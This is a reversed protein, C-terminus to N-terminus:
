SFYKERAHQFFDLMFTSKSLAELDKPDVGEDTEESAKIKQEIKVPKAYVSRMLSEKFSNSEGLMELATAIEKENFVFLIGWNLYMQYDSTMPIKKELVAYALHYKISYETDLSMNEMNTAAWHLYDYGKKTKNYQMYESEIITSYLTEKKKFINGFTIKKELVPKKSLEIMDDLSVKFETLMHELFIWLILIDSLATHPKIEEVGVADMYSQFWPQDDWEFLYRFYQLKHMEVEDNDSYLHKAVRLTDIIKHKPWELGEKALMNLDFPANHAVYIAEEQAFRKMDEFEETEHIMPLGKIQSNRYSHTMAAGPKIPVPSNNLREKFEVKGDKIYLYAQEIIRDDPDIGTTETDHIVITYGKFLDKNKKAM